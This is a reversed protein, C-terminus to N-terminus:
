VRYFSQDLKGTLRTASAEIILYDDELRLGGWGDIYIGPEITVVDNTKLEYSCKSSLFPTEHVSIGLGHGLGHTFYKGLGRSELVECATMHVDRGNVGAHLANVAAQHSAALIDHYEQVRPDPEGLSFNRTIDCLYGMYRAGFDVTVWEGCAMEKDTARGHPMSSRTGSAVIMDFGAEGGRININFNLLAEFEKETMGPRVDNLTELFADAAIEGAKMIFKIEEEDKSRCLGSTMYTGDSWRTNKASSLKEWISHYTKSAECLVNRVGHRSISEIVDDTLSNRQAAVEHPSQEEGQQRYRSDLILEASDRYVLLAGSTGRFGSLYYLTEWNCGEDTLVAFVDTGTKAMEARLKEIRKHIFEENM